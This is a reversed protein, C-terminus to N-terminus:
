QSKKSKSPVTYGLLQVCAQYYDKRQKRSAKKEVNKGLCPHYDTVPTMTMVVYDELKHYEEPSSSARKPTESPSDGSSSGTPSQATPPKNFSEQVKKKALRRDFDGRRFSQVCSSHIGWYSGKGNSSRCVKVFCGHTSLNHRISNRWSCQATRFYPYHTVVYKYIDGLLLCEEPSNLLAQAVMTIYGVEPKGLSPKTSTPPPCARTDLYPQPRGKPYGQEISLIDPSDPLSGQLSSYGSEPSAVPVEASQRNGHSGDQTRPSAPRHSPDEAGQSCAAGDKHDLFPYPRYPPPLSKTYLQYDAQFALLHARVAPDVGRADPCAERAQPIQVVTPFRHDTHPVPGAQLATQDASSVQIATPHVSSSQVGSQHVSSAHLGTQPCSSAQLAAQSGSSSQLGTQHVTYNPTCSM